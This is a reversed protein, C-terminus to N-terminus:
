PKEARPKRAVALLCQSALTLEISEVSFGAGELLARFQEQTFYTYNGSDRRRRLETLYPRVRKLNGLNEWLVQAAGWLGTVKREAELTGLVVGLGSFHAYFVTIVAMGGPKLVRLLEKAANAQDGPRLTYLTNCCVLKDFTGDPFDLRATLDGFVYTGRPAKSRCLALGKESFDVGVVDAGRDLLAVAINGTGVGADLIRDGPGPKLLELHRKVLLQYVRSNNVADYVSFYSSWFQQEEKKEEPSAFGGQTAHTQM